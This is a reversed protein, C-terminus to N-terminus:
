DVQDLGDGEVAGDGAMEGASPPEATPDDDGLDWGTDLESPPPPALTSSKTRALAPEAPPAVPTPPTSDADAAPVHAPRTIADHM